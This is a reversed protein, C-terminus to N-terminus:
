GDHKTLAPSHEADERRQADPVELIKKGALRYANCYSRGQLRITAPHGCRQITGDVIWVQLDYDFGSWVRGFRIEDGSLRTM